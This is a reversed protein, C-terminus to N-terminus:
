RNRMSSYTILVFPALGIALLVLRGIGADLGKEWGEWVFEAGWALLGLLGICLALFPLCMCGTEGAEILDDFDFKRWSM